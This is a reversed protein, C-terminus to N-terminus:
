LNSAENQNMANNEDIRKEKAKKNRKLRQISSHRNLPSCYLSPLILYLIGTVIMKQFNLLM